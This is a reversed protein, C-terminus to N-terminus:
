LGGILTNANYAWAPQFAVGGSAAVVLGYPDAALSAWEAASLAKDFIVGYIQPFSATGQINFYQHQGVRPVDYLTSFGLTNPSGKAVGGAYFQTSFAGSTETTSSSILLPVGAVGQASHNPGLIAGGSWGRWIEGAGGNNTGFSLSYSGGWSSDTDGYRSQRVEAPWTATETQGYFAQSFQGNGSNFDSLFSSHNLGLDVGTVAEALGLEGGVVATLKIGLSLDTVLEHVNGDSEVIVMAVINPYLAHSTNLVLTGTPKAM